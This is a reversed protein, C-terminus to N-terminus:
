RLWGPPVGAKRAEDQLEEMQQELAAKRNQLRELQASSRSRAGVTYAGPPPPQTSPSGTTAQEQRNFEAIQRDVDAIQDRLKQARNHWYAENKPENSSTAKGPKENKGVVSVDRRDMTRVDDNTYVHKATIAPAGNAPTATAGDKSKASADPSSSDTAQQAPAPPQTSQAPLPHGASAAFLTIAAIPIIPLRM